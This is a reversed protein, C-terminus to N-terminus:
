KRIRRLFVFIIPAIIPTSSNLVAAGCGIYCLIFTGLFEATVKKCKDLM